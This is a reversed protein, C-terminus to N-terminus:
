TGVLKIGITVSFIAVIFRVKPLYGSANKNLGFNKLFLGFLGMTLVMGCYFLGVYLFVTFISKTLAVPILLFISALGAIGHM